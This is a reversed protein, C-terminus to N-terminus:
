EDDEESKLALVPRGVYEIDNDRLKTYIFATGQEPIPVGIMLRFDGGCPKIEHVFGFCGRWKHNETFQVVDNINFTM